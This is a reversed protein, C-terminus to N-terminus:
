SDLAASEAPVNNFPLETAASSWTQACDAQTLLCPPVNGLFSGPGPM